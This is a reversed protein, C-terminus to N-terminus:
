SSANAPAHVLFRMDPDPQHELNYAGLRAFDARRSLVVLGGLLMLFAWTYAGYVQAMKAFDPSLGTEFRNKGGGLGPILLLLLVSVLLTVFVVRASGRMRLTAVVLLALPVLLTVAHHKWTRESFLLMGLVVLGFEALTRWSDRRRARCCWGVLLLYGVLCCQTLRRAIIPSLSLLNDYRMPVMEGGNWAIFSPSETALRTVLGPLSQNIHESTVKGEILFPEVMVHYWSVLQQQHEVFGLRAAPVLGPYLFLALGLGCGALTKWSRKWVLYPVFLAPTLKCAIGLALLGGALLDRRARYATLMTVVLFLIVLNVNGHSLDDLIPKGSVLVILMWAWRPAYPQVLRIVQWLALGAMAVKLYFWVLAAPVPDLRAIPELLVAMMPPNPFHHVASIDVGDELQLLQSQWRTFATGGERSVRRAVRVSLGVVLLLLVVVFLRELRSRAM